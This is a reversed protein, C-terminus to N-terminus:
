RDGNGLRLVTNAAALTIASGDLAVTVQDKILGPTNTYHWGLVVRFTRTLGVHGRAPTAM